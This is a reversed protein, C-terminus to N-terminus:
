TEVAGLVGDDLRRDQRRAGIKQRDFVYQLFELAKFHQNVFGAALCLILCEFQEAIMHLRATLSGVEVLVGQDKRTRRKRKRSTLNKQWLIGSHVDTLDLTGTSQM